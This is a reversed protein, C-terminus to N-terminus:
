SWIKPSVALNLIPSESRLNILAFNLLYRVAYYIVFADIREYIKFRSPQVLFPRM